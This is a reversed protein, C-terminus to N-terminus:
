DVAVSDARVGGFDLWDQLIGSGLVQLLESTKKAHGRSIALKQGVIRGDDLRQGSEKSFILCVLPFIFLLHGKLADLSQKSRRRDQLTRIRALLEYQLRVRAITSKSGDQRLVYVAFLSDQLKGTTSQRRGFSVIAHGLTLTQSDNPRYTLKPGVDFSTTELHDGVM